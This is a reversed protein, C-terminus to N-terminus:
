QYKPEYPMPAINHILKHAVTITPVNTARELEQLLTNFLVNEIKEDDERSKSAAVDEEGRGLYPNGRVSGKERIQWQSADEPFYAISTVVVVFKRNKSLLTRAKVKGRYFSNKDFEKVTNKAFLFIKKQGLRGNDKKRKM